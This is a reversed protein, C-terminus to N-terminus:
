STSILLLHLSNYISPYVVFDQEVASIVTNLIRRYAIISFFIFSFMYIYLQTVKYVASMLCSM